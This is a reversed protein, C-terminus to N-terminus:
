LLFQAEGEDAPWTFIKFSVTSEIQLSYKETKQSLLTVLLM